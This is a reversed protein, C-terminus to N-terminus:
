WGRASRKGYTAIPPQGMKKATEEVLDSPLQVWHVREFGAIIVEGNELEIQATIFRGHDEPEVNLIKTKSRTM